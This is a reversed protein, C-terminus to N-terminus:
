RVGPVKQVEDLIRRVECVLPVIEYTHGMFFFERSDTLYTRLTSEPAVNPGMDKPHINDTAIARSASQVWQDLREDYHELHDRLSRDAIPSSKDVKLVGRLKRGRQQAYGDRKRSPFLLRSIIATHTLLSHLARFVESNPTNRGDPKHPQNIEGIRMNFQELAFLVSNCQTKIEQLYVLNDFEPRDIM